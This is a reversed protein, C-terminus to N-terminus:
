FISSFFSCSSSFAPQHQADQVLLQAGPGQGGGGRERWGGEQGLQIGLQVTGIVLFISAVGLCGLEGLGGVQEGHEATLVCDGVNLQEIPTWDRRTAIKTGAFIGPRAPTQLM